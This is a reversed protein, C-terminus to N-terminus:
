PAVARAGIEARLRGIMVRADRDLLKRLVFGPVGFAPRATLEYTLETGGARDGITWAGEYEAFSRNCQDRFRIVDAGEEVALVLHVRKSFMLYKSVAEQEVRVHGEQRDLVRSTRVDPMFRPINAYDTLVSRVVAPAQPVTFRAAVMYVGGRERVSIVEDEAPTAAVMLTATLLWAGTLLIRVTM